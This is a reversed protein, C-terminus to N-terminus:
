ARRLLSRIGASQRGGRVQLEAQQDAAARRAQEVLKERKHLGELRASTALERERLEIETKGLAAARNEMEKQQVQLSAREEKLAEERRAQKRSRDELDQEVQTAEHQRKELGHQAATMSDGHHAYSMEAAQVKEALMAETESIRAQRGKVEEDLESKMRLFSQEQQELRREWDKLVLDREKLQDHVERALDSRMRGKEEQM